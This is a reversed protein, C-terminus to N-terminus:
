FVLLSLHSTLKSRKQNIKIKHLNENKRVKKGDKVLIGASILVNLADYVRRKINQEEKLLEPKHSRNLQEDRISDRLIIDAVEKYTTIQKEIVIDRVIVSLIKLGKNCRRRDHSEDDESDIQLDLNTNLPPACKSNDMKYSVLNPFLPYQNKQVSNQNFTSGFEPLHRLDSESHKNLILNSSLKSNLPIKSSMEPHFSTHKYADNFAPPLPIQHRSILPSHGKSPLCHSFLPSFSPLSSNADSVNELKTEFVEDHPTYRHNNSSKYFALPPLQSFDNKNSEQPFPNM